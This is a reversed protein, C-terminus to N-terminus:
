CMTGLNMIYWKDVESLRMWIDEDIKLTIKDDNGIGSALM